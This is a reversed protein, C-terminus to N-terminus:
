RLRQDPQTQRALRQVGRPELEIMWRGALSESELRRHRDVHRAEEGRRLLRLPDRRSPHADPRSDSSRLRRSRGTATIPEGTEPHVLESMSPHSVLVGRNVTATIPEGTEPHVLESM